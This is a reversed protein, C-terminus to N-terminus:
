IVGEEKDNSENLKRVADVDEHVEADAPVIEAVGAAEEMAEKTDGEDVIQQAPSHIDAPDFSDPIRNENQDDIQGEGSSQLIPDDDQNNM